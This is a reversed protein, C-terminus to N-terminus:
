NRKRSEQQRAPENGFEEKAQELEKALRECNDKSAGCLAQMHILSEGGREVPTRKVVAPHAPHEKPTFSWIGANPGSGVDAVLWGKKTQFKAQPDGQLAAYAEAVTKFGISATDQVPPSGPMGAQQQNADAVFRRNHESFASFLKNFEAEDGAFYGVEKVSVKADQVDIERALAAPHAPNGPQTFVYQRGAQDNSFTVLKEDPIAHQVAASDTSVQKYYTQWQAPTVKGHAYPDIAGAWALNSLLLFVFLIKRLMNGQNAPM